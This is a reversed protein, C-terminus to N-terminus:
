SAAPRPLNIAVALASDGADYVSDPESQRTYLLQGVDHGHLGFQLLAERSWQQMWHCIATNM